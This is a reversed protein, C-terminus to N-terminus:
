SALKDSAAAGAALKAGSISGEVRGAVVGHRIPFLIQLQRGLAVGRGIEFLPGGGGGLVVRMGGVPYPDEDIPCAAM